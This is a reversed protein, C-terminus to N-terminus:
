NRCMLPAEYMPTFSHYFCFGVRFIILGVVILVAGVILLDKM